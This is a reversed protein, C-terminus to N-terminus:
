KILGALPQSLLQMTTSTLFFCLYMATLIALIKMFGVLQYQIALVRSTNLLVMIFSLFPGILPICYFAMSTLSISACDLVKFFDIKDKEPKILSWLFLYLAGGFLHPAIYGFLPSLIVLLISYARQAKVLEVFGDSTLGLSKIAALYPQPDRDFETLLWQALIAMLGSGLALGLFVGVFGLIFIEKSQMAKFRQEFFRTPSFLISMLDNIFTTMFNGL